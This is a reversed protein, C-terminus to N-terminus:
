TGILLGYAGTSGSTQTRQHGIDDPEDIHDYDLHVSWIPQSETRRTGAGRQGRHDPRGSLEDRLAQADHDCEM